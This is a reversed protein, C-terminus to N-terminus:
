TPDKIAKRRKLQVGLPRAPGAGSRGAWKFGTGQHVFIGPEPM